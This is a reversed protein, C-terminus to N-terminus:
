KQYYLNLEISQEYINNEDSGLDIPSEYICEVKCHRDAYFFSSNDLLEYIEKAKNEAKDYNKTWRILLTIPLISYTQLDKFKSVKGINRKNTYICIANEQNKDVKGIYWNNCDIITKLYDKFLKATM